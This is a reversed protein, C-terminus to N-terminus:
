CHHSMPSRFLFRLDSRIHGTPFTEYFERVSLPFSPRLRNRSSISRLQIFRRSSTGNSESRFRILVLYQRCPTPVMRVLPAGSTNSSRQSKTRFLVPITGSSGVSVSFILFFIASNEPCPSRTSANAYLSLSPGSVMSLSSFRIKRPSIAM